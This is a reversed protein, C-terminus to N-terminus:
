LSARQLYQMGAYSTSFRQFHDMRELMKGSGHFFAVHGSYEHDIAIITWVGPVAEGFTEVTTGSSAHNPLVNPTYSVSLVRGTSPDLLITGDGHQDDRVQSVFAISREHPVCPCAAETFSYDRMYRADYPQKFFTKGRQLDANNEAEKEAVKDPSLTKGNEVIRLYRLRKYEGDELMVIADNQQSFHAPGASANFQVHREEVLVGGLSTSNFIAARLLADPLASGARSSSAVALSAACFFVAAVSAIAKM